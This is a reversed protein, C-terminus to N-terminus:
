SYKYCTVIDRILIHEVISSILFFLGGKLVRVKSGEKEDKKGGRLEECASLLM